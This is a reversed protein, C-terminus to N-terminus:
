SYRQAMAWPAEIIGRLEQSAAALPKGKPVPYWAGAGAQTAKREDEWNEGEWLEMLGELPCASPM